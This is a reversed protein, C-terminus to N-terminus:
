SARTTSSAVNINKMANETSPTFKFTTGIDKGLDIWDSGWVKYWAQHTFSDVKRDLTVTIEKGLERADSVTKVTSMRPIREFTETTTLSLSGVYWGDYTIGSTSGSWISIDRTARGDEDHTFTFEVSGLSKESGAIFLDGFYLYKNQGAVQVGIYAGYTPDFEIRYGGSDNGVALSVRVTSTNAVRDQAITTITYKLYVHWNGDFYKYPM